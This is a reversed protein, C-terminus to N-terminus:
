TTKKRSGEEFGGGCRGNAPNIMEYEVEVTIVEVVANADKGCGIEKRTNEITPWTESDYVM